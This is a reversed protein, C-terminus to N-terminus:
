SGLVRSWMRMRMRVLRAIRPRRTMVRWLRGKRNTRVIQVTKKTHSTAHHHLAPHPPTTANSPASSTAKASPAHAGAPPSGHHESKNNAVTWFEGREQLLVYMCEVHFEHGCPLSMVRSVGDVYEELCVVCEVQRGMYKKWQSGKTADKQKGRADSNKRSTDLPKAEDLLGSSSNSRSIGPEPLHSTTRSRPRSRGGLLPTAEGGSLPSSSRGAAGGGQSSHSDNRTDRAVFTRVPLQQVVSKPARWRRRRIRSRILLMAYVVTLTVLPSVVLVLLTDFFPTAGNTQTLTVWVGEHVPPLAPPADDGGDEDTGDGSMSDSLDRDDGFIKTLFGSNDGKESPNFRTPSNLSEAHAPMAVAANPPNAVVTKANKLNPSKKPDLKDLQTAKEPVIPGKKLQTAGKKNNSPIPIEAKVNVLDPDRWDQVGIVFGDDPKAGPKSKGSKGASPNKVFKSSASGGIQDSVDLDDVKIDAVGDAAGGSLLRGLWTGRETPQSNSSAPKKEKPKTKKPKKEEGNGGDAGEGYLSSLMRATNRSTFVSPVTVNSTDGRAYMQILPRNPVDDGVIVAIGGRRQAWLVKELFGCGGRQLLVVKGAIEASEQLSQIDAHRNGASDLMRNKGVAGALEGGVALPHLYDDTGDGKGSGVRTGLGEIGGKAPQIRKAHKKKDEKVKKANGKLPQVVDGHAGHATHGSHGDSWGPLDSCGLEAGAGLSGLHGLREDGFGSGIWLQGSMGNKPLSPGFAAPRAHFATTNDDTLSIIANPPFLSLPASFSFSSFIGSSKSPTAQIPAYTTASVNPSRITQSPTRASLFLLTFFALSFAILIVVRPTRM